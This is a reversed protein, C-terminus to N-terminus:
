LDEFDRENDRKDNKDDKEFSAARDDIKERENRVDDKKDTVKIHKNFTENFIQKQKDSMGDYNRIECLKDYLEKAEKPSLEKREDKEAM